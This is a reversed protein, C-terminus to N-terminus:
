PGLMGPGDVLSNAEAEGAAAEVKGAVVGQRDLALM